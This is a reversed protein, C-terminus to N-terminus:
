PEVVINVRRDQAIHTRVVRVRRRVGGGRGRREDLCVQVRTAVATGPVATAPPASTVIFITILRLKVDNVNSILPTTDEGGKGRDSAISIPNGRLGVRRRRHRDQQLNQATSL